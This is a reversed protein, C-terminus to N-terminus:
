DSCHVGCYDSGHKAKNACRKGKKTYAKCQNSWTTKSRYGCPCARIKQSDKVFTALSNKQCDPCSLVKMSRGSPNLEPDFGHSKALKVLESMYM